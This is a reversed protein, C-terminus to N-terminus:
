VQEANEAQEAKKLVAVFDNDGFKNFVEAVLGAKKFIEKWGDESLVNYEGMGANYLKNMFLDKLGDLGDRKLEDVIMIAEKTVEGMKKLIEIKEERNNRTIPMENQNRM